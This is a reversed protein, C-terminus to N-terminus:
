SEVTLGVELPVVGVHVGSSHSFIEAWLSTTVARSIRFIPLFAAAELTSSVFHLLMHLGHVEFFFLLSLPHSSALFPITIRKRLSLIMALKSDFVLSIILLRKVIM